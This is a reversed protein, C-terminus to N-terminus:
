HMWTRARLEVLMEQSARGMTQLQQDDISSKNLVRELIGAFQRTDRSDVQFGNVGERLQEKMGGSDNRIVVHGEDRDSGTCFTENFSCCIVANCERTIALAEDHSVEGVGRFSNGLVSKGISTIQAAIYDDTMGVFILSFDRYSEPNQEYYTRLFEHFAALALMHGKRGDTPRGSLLFRLSRYEDVSRSRKDQIGELVPPLLKTKDTSFIGDYQSKVLRSPVHISLRETDVLEGITERFGHNLVFPALMTLQESDEHIYWNAQALRGLRLAYLVSSLYNPPVAVTNLLVFDTRRLALQFRVLTAGMVAAAREVRVGRSALRERLEVHVQPSLLRISRPEYRDAFEEIVHVLVRPAGSINMSPSVFVFGRESPDRAALRARVIDGGLELSERLGREHAKGLLTAAM